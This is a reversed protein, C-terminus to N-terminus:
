ISRVSIGTITADPMFSLSTILSTADVLFTRDDIDSAPTLRRHKIPSTLSSGQNLWTDRAAVNPANM